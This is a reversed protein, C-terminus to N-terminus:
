PKAISAAKALCIAHYESTALISRNAAISLYPKEHFDDPDARVGALPTIPSNDDVVNFCDDIDASAFRATLRKSGTWMPKQSIYRLMKGTNFRGEVSLGEQQSGTLQDHLTQSLRAFRERAFAPLILISPASLVRPQWRFFTM